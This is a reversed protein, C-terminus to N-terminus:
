ASRPVCSRSSQKKKPLNKCSTMGKKARVAEMMRPWSCVVRDITSQPIAKWCEVVFKKLQERTLPGKASVQQQVISWVREIPNLDPSRAPHEVTGLIKQEALWKSLGKHAGAGDHVFYRTRMARLNPAVCQTRYVETDIKLDDDFVKLFKYGVGIMGFVHVRPTYREVERPPACEGPEVYAYRDSDLSDFLKEDVFLVRECNARAFPIKEKVYRLRKAEDEAFREPGKPRRRAVLGCAIRDRRVTSRSVAIGHDNYLARRCRGLSGTPHRTQQRALKSNKRRSGDKNLTADIDELAKVRRTLLRRVLRRRKVINPAARRARRRASRASPPGKALNSTITRVSVHVKDRIEPLTMGGDRLGKIYWFVSETVKM